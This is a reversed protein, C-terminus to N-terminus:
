VRTVCTPSTGRWRDDAPLHRDLLRGPASTCARRLAGRGRGAPDRLWNTWGTGGPSTASVSTASWPGLLVSSPPASGPCSSTGAGMKVNRWTVEVDSPPGWREPLTPADFAAHELVGHVVTGVLAGGPMDALGLAGVARGGRVARVRPAADGAGGAPGRRLHLEREPESGVSPTTTCPALSARTRCGAGASTSCATSCPRRWSPPDGRRVVWRPDRRGCAGGLVPAWHLCRGVGGRRGCPRPGLAWWERPRPRLPAPVAALASQAPGRGVLVGGPSPGADRGRLAAAFGRGAGGGIGDEPPRSTMEPAGSTSPACTAMTPITSCRCTMKPTATGCTRASSSRSNSGRAATSRSSRCREADSELRGCGGREGADRADHIRRGLWTAMATPGLGDSVGAEHLLQGIHRLDTMFREGSPRALVRGPVAHASSVAEYLSAIGQDRLLPGGTCRGTSARGNARRRPPSRKPRGDSSLPSHRWRLGTGRGRGSWRRSCGCGNGPPTLSSSPGREVSSPPCAWTERLTDRCRGPMATRGYWCPWTARTSPPPSRPRDRRAGPTDRGPPRASLSASSKPPSTM